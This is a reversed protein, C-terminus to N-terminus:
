QPHPLPWLRNVGKEPLGNLSYRDLKWKRYWNESGHDIELLRCASPRISQCVIKINLDDWTQVSISHICIYMYIHIKTHTVLLLVYNIYRRGRTAFLFTYILLYDFGDILDPLTCARYMFINFYDRVSLHKM